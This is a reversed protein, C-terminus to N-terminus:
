RRPIGDFGSLHSSRVSLITQLFIRTTQEIDPSTLVASIVAVGTAGAELVKKLNKLNIGGIAFIPIRVKSRVERIIDCGLPPRTKKTTTSYIPGLGIYNAGGKEADLAEQLSHTSIGILCRDGLVKRAERLPLDEQGLHVGDAEVALAMSVDDNVIFTVGAEKTLRRLEKATQYSVSAPLNKERYQLFKIGGQIAKQVTEQLSLGHVISTDTILCLGSKTANLLSEHPDSAAPPTM